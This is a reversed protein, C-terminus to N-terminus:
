NGSKEFRLITNLNESNIRLFYLGDSLLAANYQIVGGTSQATFADLLTGRIDFVFIECETETLGSVYIEQHAPNPFIKIENYESLNFISTYGFEDAGIDPAIGRPNGDIDDTVDAIAIAAGELGNASCHLDADSTYLPDINITHTDNSTASVWSALNPLAGYFNCLNSGTSFFDNYDSIFVAITQYTYIAYGGANNTFINNKIKLGDTGYGDFSFASSSSYNGTVNVSNYYFKQFNSSVCNIGSSTNGSTNIRVFNNAILGENGLSSECNTFYMGYGGASSTVSIKNKCIVMNNDCFQIHMARVNTPSSTTIINGTVVPANQNSLYIASYYQESFINDSIVTGSEKAVTGYYYIGYSGYNFANNTFINNDEDFDSSYILAQDVSAMSTQYGSIVNNTFTNNGALSDIVIVCSYTTGTSTISMDKFIIHNAAYLYLTFDDSYSSPAYTLEVSTSDNDQSQFTITNTASTGTISPIYLQENYTGPKVNFVVPGSVGNTVLDSVASSFTIYDSPAAGIIKTGSLQGFTVFSVLCFLLLSYLKPSVIRKIKM